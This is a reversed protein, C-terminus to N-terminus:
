CEGDHAHSLTLMHASAHSPCWPTSAAKTLLRVTMVNEDVLFINGWYSPVLLTLLKRCFALVLAYLQFYIQKRAEGRHCVGAGGGFGRVQVSPAPPPPPM